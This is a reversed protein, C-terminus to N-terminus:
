KFHNKIFDNCKKLVLSVETNLPFPFSCVISNDEATINWEPEVRAISVIDSQTKRDAKANKRAVVINVKASDEVIFFRIEKSANRTGAELCYREPVLELLTWKEYSKEIEKEIRRFLEPIDDKVEEVVTEVKEESLEGKNMRARLSGIDLRENKEEQTGELEKLLIDKSRKEINVQEALVMEMRKQLDNEYTRIEDWRKEIRKEEEIRLEKEAELKELKEMLEKELEKLEGEYAELESKKKDIAAEKDQLIQKMQELVSLSNDVITESM